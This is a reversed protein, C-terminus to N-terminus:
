AADHEAMARWLPAVVIAAGLACAAWFYVAVQWDYADVLYGTVQDGMAAGLYGVFNVFGVAAATTGHRALDVPATGVLLVQPGFIMAGIFALTIVSLVLNTRIVADYGLTLLALVIMMACIVPVRRGRFYRDSAWGAALTGVIGGLPLVSYKLASKGIGSGQVEMLHSVGWDLFGFRCANLLGLAGALFWLRGNSLTLGVTTLWPRHGGVPVARATGVQETGAEPAERLTMLMIVATAVLLIAPVYLAGRWGLWQASWGAIVFTLAGALQYGTGIISIARGRQAPPFWRSAVRMTPPWGLAQFYGNCAWLFLLFYFGTSLGFLVNLAASVLMGIALLRRAGIREALQGNVLQGVGYSIKLAGLIWGIETKTLDLEAELGPVAASLNSRCFYFAGYTLWLVWLVKTQARDFRATPQPDM